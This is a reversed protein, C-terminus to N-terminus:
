SLSDTYEDTTLSRQELQAYEAVGKLNYRQFVVGISGVVSSRDAYVKDGACLILYGGSAAIDEAFTLLPLHHERSFQQLKSAIIESQVPLGGRSNISVALAKATSTDVLELARRVHSTRRV